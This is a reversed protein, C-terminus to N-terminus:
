GLDARKAGIQAIDVAPFHILYVLVWGVTTSEGAALIQEFLVHTILGLTHTTPCEDALFTSQVSPNKKPPPHM